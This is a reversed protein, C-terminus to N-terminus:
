NLVEKNSGCTPMEQGLYPNHIENSTTLWNAGASNNAMPCHNYYVDIGATGFAKLSKYLAENLNALHIRQFGIDDSGTIQKAESKMDKVNDMWANHADGTLLSMDVKSLQSSFETIGSKIQAKDDNLFADVLQQNADVVGKLQTQFETSVDYKKIMDMHGDMDKKMHSSHEHQALSTGIITIFLLCVLMFQKKM